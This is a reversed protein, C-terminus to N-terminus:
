GIACPNTAPTKITSNFIAPANSTSKNRWGVSRTKSVRSPKAAPTISAALKVLRISGAM